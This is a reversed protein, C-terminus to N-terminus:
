FLHSSALTAAVAVITAVGGAIQAVRTGRSADADITSATLAAGALVPTVGSWFVALSLAALVGLIVAARASARTRPLVASYLIATVLLCAIATIIAPGLGGNEGHPVRYNGAFIIVGALALGAVASTQATPRGAALGTTTTTM